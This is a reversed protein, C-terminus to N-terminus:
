MIVFNPPIKCSGDPWNDQRKNIREWWWGKRYERSNGNKQYKQQTWNWRPLLTGNNIRWLERKRFIGSRCSIFSLMLQLENELILPNACSGQRYYRHKQAILRVCAVAPIEQEPGRNRIKVFQTYGIIVSVIKKRKKKEKKRQPIKCEIRTLPRTM